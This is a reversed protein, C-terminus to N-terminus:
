SRDCGQPLCVAKHPQDSRLGKRIRYHRTLKAVELADLNRTAELVLGSDALRGALEDKFNRKM